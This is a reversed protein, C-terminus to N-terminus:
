TSKSRSNCAKELIGALRRITAPPLDRIEASLRNAFATYEPPLGATDVTIRPDSIRAIRFLEEAEDWIINFYGAVKQLFEFSPTGRRGHELASLYAPSVGLAAAMEKQSVGKRSRLHRVAVGFPTTM